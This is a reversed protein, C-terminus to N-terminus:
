IFREVSPVLRGHFWYMPDVLVEHGAKREHTPSRNDPSSQHSASCALRVDVLKFERLSGCATMAALRGACGCAPLELPINRPSAGIGVSGSGPGRTM